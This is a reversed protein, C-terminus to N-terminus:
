ARRGPVTTKRSHLRAKRADAPYFPDRVTRDYDALGLAQALLEADPQRSLARRALAVEAPSLNM